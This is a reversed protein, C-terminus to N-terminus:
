IFPHRKFEKQRDFLYRYTILTRSKYTGLNEAIAVMRPNFDGIWQMEFDYYIKKERMSTAGELIMYSDVGKGQHEPIIGFVLGYMKHITKRKLEIIFRIKEFLGFRGNFKKFIQNIDPLNVWMAVPENKYYVYWILNEDIVPKMTKFFKQVQKKDLEKGGGHKAWAKNYVIRFDEAYKGLNSKVLHESHYDPQAKIADHRLHFKEQLPAHVKLSFCWQQFYTKFGFNEFLAQYYPRNYNMKYPVPDFGEIILGWWSDREGFNIPGDMAAIGKSTLWTQAQQFLLKAASQDDICEFFGIGGTPQEEKKSTRENIFVAIRGITKKQDNKLIFRSCTGHRFFKNKAPDFVDNIDKDLPRIWNTDNKYILLPLLLFEKKDSETIVEIVEM